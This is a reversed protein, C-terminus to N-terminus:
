LKEIKAALIFDSETLGHIKHTWITVRTKGWALYVDPHHGIKEAAAGIKNTFSLAGRFDKFKFEKELQGKSIRWNGGLLKRYKKLEAGKLRAVNGDDCKRSALENM